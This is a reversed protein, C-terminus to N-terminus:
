IDGNKKLKWLKTSIANSTRSLMRAMGVPTKGRKYMNILKAVDKKTWTKSSYGTTYVKPEVVKDAIISFEIGFIKFKM